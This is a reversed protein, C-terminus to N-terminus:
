DKGEAGHWPHGGFYRDWVELPHLKCPSDQITKAVQAICPVQPQALFATKFEQTVCLRPFFDNSSLLHKFIPFGYVYPYLQLHFLTQDFITVYFVYLEYILRWTKQCSSRPFLFFSLFSKQIHQLILCFMPVLGGFPSSLMTMVQNQPGWQHVTKPAVEEPEQNKPTTRKKPKQVQSGEELAQLVAQQGKETAALVHPLAGAQLPGGEESIFTNLLESDLKKHAAVKLRETNTDDQRIVRGEPM